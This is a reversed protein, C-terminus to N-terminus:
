QMGEMMGPPPPPMGGEEPPLQEQPPQPNTAMQMAAAMQMEEAREARIRQEEEDPNIGPLLERVKRKSIYGADALSTNKAAELTADYGSPYFVIDHRYDELNPLDEAYYYTFDKEGEPNGYYDYCKQKVKPFFKKNIALAYTDLAELDVGINQKLFMTSDKAGQQAANIGTGTWVSASVTGSQSAPWSTQERFTQQQHAIDNAVEPLTGDIKSVYRVAAGQETKIYAGRGVPMEKPLGDGEIHLLSNLRERREETSLLILENINENLGLEHAVDSLSELRNPTPINQIVRAPVFGLNHDAGTDPIDGAFFDANGSTGAQILFRRSKPTLLEYVQYEDDTFHVADIKSAGKYTNLLQRGTMKYVFGVWNFEISSTGYYDAIIASPDRPTLVAKKKNFDPLAVVPQYGILSSNLFVQNLLYALNSVQWTDYISNTTIQSLIWRETNDDAAVHVKLDPMGSGSNVKAVVRSKIMNVLLQNRQSQVTEGILSQLKGTFRNKYFVDELEKNAANRDGVKSLEDALLGIVEKEELEDIKM